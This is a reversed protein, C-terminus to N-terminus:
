HQVTLGQNFRVRVVEGDPNTLTSVTNSTNRARSWCEWWSDAEAQTDVWMGNGHLQDPDGEPNTTNHTSQLQWM